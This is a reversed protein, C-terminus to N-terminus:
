PKYTERVWELWESEFDALPIKLVGAVAKPLSAEKSLAPLVDGLKDAHRGKVLFALLTLAQLNVLSTQISAEFESLKPRRRNALMEGVQGPLDEQPLYENQLFYCLGEEVWTAGHAGRLGFARTVLQHTVEHFFVPRREGREANYSCFSYEFFTYGDSTIARANTEAGYVDRATKM